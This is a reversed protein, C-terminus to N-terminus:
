KGLRGLLRAKVEEWPVGSDPNRKMAEVRRDLEAKMDDTLEPEFDDDALGDWVDQVLRIRDDISWSEVENLVAQYDM